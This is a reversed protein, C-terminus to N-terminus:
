YEGPLIFTTASRDSETILWVRTEGGILYSSLVRGGTRLALENAQADEAPVCGWDGTLHRALLSLPTCRHEEMATLAASTAVLQGPPFRPSSLAQAEPTDAGTSVLQYM